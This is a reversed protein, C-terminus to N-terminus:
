KIGCAERFRKSDFLNNMTKFTNCLDDIINEVIRLEKTTSAQGYQLSIAKAIEIFHKKNM